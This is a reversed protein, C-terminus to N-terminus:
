MLSRRGIRREYALKEMEHRNRNRLQTEQLKKRQNDKRGEYETKVKYGKKSKVPSKIVM